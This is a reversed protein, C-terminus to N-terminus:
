KKHKKHFARARRLLERGKATRGGIPVFGKANMQKRAKKVSMNWASKKKRSKTKKATKKQKKGFGYFSRLTMPHTRSRSKKSRSKKSRPKKSRPKKSRPKKSQPKRISKKPMKVYLYM